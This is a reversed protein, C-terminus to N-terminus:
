PSDSLDILADLRAALGAVYPPRLMSNHDGETDVVAILGRALAEWGATPLDPTRAAFGATRVLTLSGGFVGPHFHLLAHLNAQYVAVLGAIM